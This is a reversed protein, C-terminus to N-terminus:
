PSEDDRTEPLFLSILDDTSCDKLFELKALNEETKDFFIHAEMSKRYAKFYKEPNNIGLDYYRKSYGDLIVFRGRNNNEKKEFVYNWAHGLKWLGKWSGGIIAHTGAGFSRMVGEIVGRPVNNLFISGRELGDELLSPVKKIVKSYRTFFKHKLNSPVFGKELFHAIKYSVVVCNLFATKPNVGRVLDYVPEELFKLQAFHSRIEVVM